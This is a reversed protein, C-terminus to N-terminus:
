RHILEFCVSFRMIYMTPFFFPMASKNITETLFIFQKSNKKVLMALTTTATVVYYPPEDKKRTCPSYAIITVRQFVDEHILFLINIHDSICCNPSLLQCHWVVDQGM